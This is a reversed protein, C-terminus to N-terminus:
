EKYDDMSKLLNVLFQSSKSDLGNEGLNSFIEEFSKGDRRKFLMPAFPMNKVCSAFEKRSEINKIKDYFEVVKEKLLDRRRIWPDFVVRDENFYSLYEEEDGRWILNVIRPVSMAGNNRLRAIALYAPSKIKIRWGEFNAVYGEEQDSLDNAAKVCDEM